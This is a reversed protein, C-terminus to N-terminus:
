KIIHPIMYSIKLRASWNESSTNVANGQEDTLRFRLVNRKSGALENATIKPPNFPSHIIQSGPSVDIHVQAIVQDYKNNIRIGKSVLDSHILFYNVTNFSAVNPALLTYPATYGGYVASNFGLINRFTDAQTFDISVVSYNYLIEVKQTNEDATLAIVSTPSVKAGQNSLDRQIAENLGSLDYLGQPIVVTYATTVDATDPATIYLTDNTGTIINPITWWISSSDVSLTVNIAGKPIAIPEQLQIQFTSGDSSKNVAGNVPDSSVIIHNEHQIFNSM